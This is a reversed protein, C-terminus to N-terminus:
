DPRISSCHIEGLLVKPRLMLNDCIELLDEILRTRLYIIEDKNVAMGALGALDPLTLLLLAHLVQLLLPLLHPFEHLAHLYVLSRM